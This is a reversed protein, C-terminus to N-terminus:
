ICFFTTSINARITKVQCNVTTSCLVDEVLEYLRSRFPEFYHLLHCKFQHFMSLWGRIEVGNDKM